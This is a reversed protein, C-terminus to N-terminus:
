PWILVPTGLPITDAVKTIVDNPLRVCGNSKDQGLLEPRNTGHIALVPAGDEFENLWESYGNTALAYPGYFGNPNKYPIKDTVYFAGTPTPSFNVGTVIKSEVVVDNGDYLTFTHDAVHIEIRQRTTSLDVDEAKLYGLTGNPRVPLLVQVWAGRRETVLFTLPQAPEYPGPNTFDWGSDTAFRGTVPEEKSPIPPRKPAAPQSLPPIEASGESLIAKPSTEWEAPAEALVHVKPVESRVTAIEYTGVPLSKITTTTPRRPARTTTPTSEPEGGRSLAFGAGVLLALMTVAVIILTRRRGAVTEPAAVEPAEDDNADNNEEDREAGDAM